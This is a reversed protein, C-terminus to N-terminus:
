AHDVAAVDAAVVIVALAVIGVIVVVLAFAVVCSSFVVLLFDGDDYGDGGVSCWHSENDDNPLAVRPLQVGPIALPM